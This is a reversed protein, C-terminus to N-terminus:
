DFHTNDNLSAHLSIISWAEKFYAAFQKSVESFAIRFETKEVECLKDYLISVQRFADIVAMNDHKLSYDLPREFKEALFGCLQKRYVEPVRRIALEAKTLTNRTRVSMDINM